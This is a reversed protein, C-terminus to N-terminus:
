IVEYYHSIEPKSENIVNVQGNLVSTKVEKETWHLPVEVVLQVEINVEVVKTEM